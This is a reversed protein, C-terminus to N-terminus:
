TFEQLKEKISNLLLLATSFNSVQIFSAALILFYEFSMQTRPALIVM